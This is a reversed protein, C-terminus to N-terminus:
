DPSSKYGSRQPAFGKEDPAQYLEFGAGMEWCRAASARNGSIIKLAIVNKTVM